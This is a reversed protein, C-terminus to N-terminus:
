ILKIDEATLINAKKEKLVKIGEDINELRVVVIAEDSKKVLLHM